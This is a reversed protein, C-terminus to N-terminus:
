ESAQIVRLLSDRASRCETIADLALILHADLGKRIKRRTWYAQDADEYTTGQKTAHKTAEKILGELRDEFANILEQHTGQKIVLCAEIMSGTNQIQM